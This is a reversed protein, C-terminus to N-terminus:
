TTRQLNSILEVADICNKVAILIGGGNSQERDRRLIKYGPIRFEIDKNSNTPLWTEVCVFIDITSLLKPLEDKRRSISRSNWFLIKLEKDHM